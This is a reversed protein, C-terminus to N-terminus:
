DTIRAMTVTLSPTEAIRDVIYYKTVNPTYSLERQKHISPELLLHQDIKVYGFRWSVLKSM